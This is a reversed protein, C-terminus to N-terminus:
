LKCTKNHGFRIVAKGIVERNLVANFAMKANEVDFIHSVVPTILGSHIWKTLDRMRKRGDVIGRRIAEGARCGLVTLGKILVYNSRIKPRSGSVVWRDSCTCRVKYVWSRNSFTM